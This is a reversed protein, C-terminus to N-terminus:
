HHPLHRPRHATYRLGNDIARDAEADTFGEIGVHTRAAEILAARAHSESIEGAAVLRGLRLASRFVTVNRAGPAARAVRDAEGAVVASVYGSGHVVAPAIVPPTPPPPTLLAILRTPLPAVPAHRLVRYHGTSTRSGPAVIYGGDGRSDIGPGLRGITSRLRRGHPAHFYLHWGAPTAVTFTTPVADAVQETFQALADEFQAVTPQMHQSDLDVVHLRAATGTVVGINFRTGHRWWWRNIHTSNTSARDPWRNIAPTKAGPRLPFVPWGRAAAALAAARLNPESSM